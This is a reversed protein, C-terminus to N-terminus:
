LNVVSVRLDSLIERLFSSFSKTNQQKKETDM